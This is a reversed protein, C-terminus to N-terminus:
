PIRHIRRVEAIRNRVVDTVGGSLAANFINSLVRKEEENISGDRLAMGLVFNLEMLDLQGNDAFIRISSYAIELHSNDSESDM